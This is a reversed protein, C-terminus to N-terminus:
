FCFSNSWHILHVVPIFGQKFREASLLLFSFPFDDPGHDDDNQNQRKGEDAAHKIETSLNGHAKRVAGSIHSRCFRRQAADAGLNGAGPNQHVDIFLTQSRRGPYGYFLHQDRCVVAHRFTLEKDLRVGGRNERRHATQFCLEATNVAVNGVGGVIRDVGINGGTYGAPHLLNVRLVALIHDGTHIVVASQGDKRQVAIHGHFNFRWDETGSVADANEPLVSGFQASIRVTNQVSLRRNQDRIHVGGDPFGDRDPSRVAGQEAAPFQGDVTRQPDGPDASRDGADIDCFVM